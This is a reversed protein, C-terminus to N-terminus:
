VACIEAVSLDDVYGYSVGQRVKILRRWDMRSINVLDEEIASVCSAKGSTM